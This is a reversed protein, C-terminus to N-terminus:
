EDTLIKNIRDFEAYDKLSEENRGLHFLALGRQFYFPRNVYLNTKDVQLAENIIEVVARYNKLEMNITATDILELFEQAKTGMDDSKVFSPDIEMSKEFMKLSKRLSGCVYLEMGKLYFDDATKPTFSKPLSEPIEPISATPPKMEVKSSIKAAKEPTKRNLNEQNEKNIEFNVGIIDAIDKLNDIVKVEVCKNEDIQIIEDDIEMQEQTEELNEEIKDMLIVAKRRELDIRSKMDRARDLLPGPNVELAKDFMEVSEDLKQEFYFACGKSYMADANMPSTLLVEDLILHAKYTENLMIFSSALLTKYYDQGEEGTALIKQILEICKEYENARFATVAEDNFVPFDDPGHSLSTEEVAKVKPKKIPVKRVGNKSGKTRGM